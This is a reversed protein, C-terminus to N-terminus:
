RRPEPESLVVELVGELTRWLSTITRADPLATLNHVFSDLGDISILSRTDSLVRALSKAAQPNPRVVHLGQLHTLMQRLTPAWDRPLEGGKKKRRAREADILGELQKSKVLYNYVGFELLLRLLVSHANPYKDVPLAKLESFIERTRPEDLTCQLGKPIAAVPTVRRARKPASPTPVSLTTPRLPLDLVKDARHTKASLAPRVAGLEAITQEIDSEKNLRRTDIKGTAIDTVVRSFARRFADPTTKILPDGRDDFDLCLFERGKTSEVFRELVSLPFVRPNRVQKAVKADLPLAAAMQYLRYNRLQDRIASKVLGYRQAVEDISVGGDVLRRYFRAQMTPEWRRTQERTHRRLLIAAAAARSPAILAGVKAVTEIPRLARFKKEWGQPALDPSLLLKLAALRRNGELVFTLGNEELAVLSEVPMYGHEAVDRALEYVDDHEVLEAILDRQTPNPTVGPLRPNNPDLLLSAVEREEKLWASYAPDQRPKKM